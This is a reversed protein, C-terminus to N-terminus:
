QRKSKRKLGKRGHKRMKQRLPPRECGLKEQNEKLEASAGIKYVHRTRYREILLPLHRIKFLLSESGGSTGKREEFLGNM